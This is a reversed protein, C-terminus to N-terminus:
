AAAKWARNFALLAEYDRADIKTKPDSATAEDGLVKEARNIVSQVLARLDFGKYPKPPDLKWFQAGNVLKHTLATEDQERFSAIKAKDLTLRGDTASKKVWKFPGITEFWRRLSNVRKDGEFVRCLQNALEDNNQYAEPNDGRKAYVLNLICSCAAVHTDNMIGSNRVHLDDVMLGIMTADKTASYVVVVATKTKKAM